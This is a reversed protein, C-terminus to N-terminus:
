HPIEVLCSLMLFLDRPSIKHFPVTLPMPFYPAPSSRLGATIIASCVLSGVSHLHLETLMFGLISIWDYSEGTKSTVYAYFSAEQEPTCPLEVLKEHLMTAADYGVPRAQMGGELHEGIYTKGDQSLAEVHSPTFPMCIGAQLRILASLQDNGTVFRLRIM